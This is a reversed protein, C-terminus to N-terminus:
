ATVEDYAKDTLRDIQARDLEHGVETGPALWLRVVGEDDIMAVRDITVAGIFEVDPSEAEYCNEVPGYIQAPVYKGSIHLEVEVEVETDSVLEMVQGSITRTIRLESIAPM